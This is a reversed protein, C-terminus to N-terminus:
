GLESGAFSVVGFYQLNPPLNDIIMLNCLYLNISQTHYILSISLSANFFNLQHQNLPFFLNQIHEYFPVQKLKIQTLKYM